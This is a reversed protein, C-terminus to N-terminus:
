SDVITYSYIFITKKDNMKYLNRLELLNNRKFIKINRGAMNAGGRM